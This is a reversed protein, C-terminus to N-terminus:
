DFLKRKITVLPPKISHEFICYMNEIVRQILYCSSETKSYEDFNVVSEKYYSLLRIFDNYTYVKDPRSWEHAHFVATYLRNKLNRPCGSDRDPLLKIGHWVYPRSGKGDSMFRFGNAALAILTNEDYSHAPAFFIDTNIGHSNLIEKGRRIKDIQVNLPHGAFESGVRNTVLGRCTSDFVHQYGHMAITYGQLQLEKLYEWFDERPKDILLDPDQCDPVVGLLAVKGNIDLLEKAKRWQGWNMTPCIDDFRILIKPNKM